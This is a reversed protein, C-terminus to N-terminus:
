HFKLMWQQVAIDKQERKPHCRYHFPQIRDHLLLLLLFVQNKRKKIIIRGCDPCLNSTQRCECFLFRMALDEHTLWNSHTQDLFLHQSTRRIAAQKSISTRVLETKQM